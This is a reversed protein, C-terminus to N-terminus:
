QQLREGSSACRHGANFRYAITHGGKARVLHFVRSDGEREDNRHENDHEEADGHHDPGVMDDRGLGALGSVLADERHDERRDSAAAPKIVDGDPRDQRHQHKRGVGGEGPKRLEAANDGPVAIKGESEAQAAATQNVGLGDVHQRAKGTQQEDDEAADRITQNGQEGDSRKEGEGKGLGSHHNVPAAFLAMGSAHEDVGDAGRGRAERNQDDDDRLEGFARPHRQDQNGRQNDEHERDAPMVPADAAFDGGGPWYGEIMQIAGDNEHWDVGPVLDGQLRETERERKGALGLRQVDFGAFFGVFEALAPLLPGFLGGFGAMEGGRFQDDEFRREAVDDRRNVVVDKELLVMVGVPFNRDDDGLQDLAAPIVVEEVVLAAFGEGRKQHQTAIRLDDDDVDGPIYFDSVM